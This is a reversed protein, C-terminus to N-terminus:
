ERVDRLLEELGTQLLTFEDKKVADFDVGVIAFEWLRAVAQWHKGPPEPKSFPNCVGGRVVKVGEPIWVQVTM